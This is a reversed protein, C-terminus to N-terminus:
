HPSLDAIRRDPDALLARLVALYGHLTEAMDDRSYFTPNYNMTAGRRDHSVVLGPEGRKAWLRLLHPDTVPAAPSRGRSRHEALETEPGGGTEPGTEPGGGPGVGAPQPAAASPAAASPAAAQFWSHYLLLFPWPRAADFDPHVSRAIEKFSATHRIASFTAARVAAVADLLSATPPITSEVYINNTFQGILDEAGPADRGATATGLVLRSWGTRAGLMIRYAALFLVFPTVQQRRAFAHLGRVLEAPVRLSLSAEATVDTGPPVQAPRYPWQEPLPTLHRRWYQARRGAEAGGHAPRATADAYSLRLAALAPGAGTRARYAAQLDRLFVGTSWGDAILHFLSVAVLHSTESLRLLTARWLPGNRLDFARSREYGLISAQRAGRRHEPGTSLDAFTVPPDVEDRVAISPDLGTEAFVIRLAEHRHAVDAVAATFLDRDVPGSWVALDFVNYGLRGPDDPAFCSLFEWLAEQSRALPAPRRSM